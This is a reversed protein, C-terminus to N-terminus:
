DCESLFFLVYTLEKIPPDYFSAHIKAPKSPMKATSPTFQSLSSMRGRRFAPLGVTSNHKIRMPLSHSQSDSRSKTHMSPGSGYDVTKVSVADVKITRRRRLEAIAAALEPTISGNALAMEDITSTRKSEAPSSAKGKRSGSSGLLNRYSTASIISSWSAKSSSVGSSPTPPSPHIAQAQPQVPTRTSSTPRPTFLKSAPAYVAPIALRHSHFDLQLRLSPFHQTLTSEQKM